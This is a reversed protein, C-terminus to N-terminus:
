IFGNIEVIEWSILSTYLGNEKLSNKFVFSNFFFYVYPKYYLSLWLQESKLSIILLNILIKFFNSKMRENQHKLITNYVM